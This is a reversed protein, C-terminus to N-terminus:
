QCITILHCVLLSLHKPSADLHDFQKELSNPRKFTAKSFNRNELAQWDILQLQTGPAQTCGSAAGPSSKIELKKSRLVNRWYIGIYKLTLINQYIAIYDLIDKRGGESEWAAPSALLASKNIESSRRGFVQVAGRPMRMMQVIMMNQRSTLMFIKM